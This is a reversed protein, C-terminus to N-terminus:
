GRFVVELFIPKRFVVEKRHYNMFAFHTYLFDMGLIVDLEQLVLPLLDVPLNVIEVLVECGRLVKSVLMKNGIPNYIVLM